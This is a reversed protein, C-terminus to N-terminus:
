HHNTCALISTHLDQRDSTDKFPQQDQALDQARPVQHRYQDQAAELHLSRPLNKYALPPDQLAQLDSPDETSQQDTSFSGEM